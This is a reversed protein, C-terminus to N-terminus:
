EKGKKHEGIKHFADIIWDTLGFRRGMGRGRTMLHQFSMKRFNEPISRKEVLTRKPLDM